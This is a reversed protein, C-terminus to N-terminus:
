CNKRISAYAEQLLEEPIYPDFCSVFAEYNWQQALQRVKSASMNEMNEMDDGQKREGM